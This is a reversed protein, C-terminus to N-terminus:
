RQSQCAKRRLEDSVNADRRMAVNQRWQLFGFITGVAGLVAVILGGIGLWQDLTLGIAAHAVAHLSPV